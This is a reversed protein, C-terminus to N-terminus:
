IAQALFPQVMEAVMITSLINYHTAGPVIGLRAVSRLSGDLGADRKGGGLAEYFVVIHEPRISDADAFILETPSQIQKVQASWDFNQSEMEGIKRLLSEWNVEPYLKGLPSGKINQAIQAAHLGMQDFAANVEPYSADQAMSASVVILRKVSAPHRIVTQLAVGGGLSYGLLDTKGLKLYAILAAIDDAMSEFRLPRDIDKTHGHGQLHVAIVQRSKALAPLNPGFAESAQVGGHLLVLPEGDGHIEYYMQLGNVPAFGSKKNPMISGLPQTPQAFTPLVAVTSMALGAYALFERRQM